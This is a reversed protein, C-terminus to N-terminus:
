QSEDRGGGNMNMDEAESFFEAPPGANRGGFENTRSKEADKLDLWVRDVCTLSIGDADFAASLEAKSIVITDDKMPGLNM